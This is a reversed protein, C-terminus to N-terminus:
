PSIRSSAALTYNFGADTETAPQPVSLTVRTGSVAAAVDGAASLSPVLITVTPTASAPSCLRRVLQLPTGTVAYAVVRDAATSTLKLEAAGGCTSTADDVAVQEAGQVDRSFYLATLQAANSEDLSGNANKTAGLGFIVAMTLVVMVIGLITISVLLEILTLGCEDDHAPTRNV